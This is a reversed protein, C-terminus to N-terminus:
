TPEGDAKRARLLDRENRPANRDWNDLAALKDAETVEAQAQVQAPTWALPEGRPAVTRDTPVPDTPDLDAM